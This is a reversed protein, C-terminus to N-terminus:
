KITSLFQDLIISASIQDVKEKNHGIKINQQQLYRQAEKSTLREDCKHIEINIQQRLDEIFKSTVKTQKSENGDMTIPYGVVIAGVKKEEIINKIEAFYNPTKKRDITKYPYSIIRLSDSMAIGIKREGYDIAMVRSEKM